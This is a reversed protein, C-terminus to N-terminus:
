QEPRFISCITLGLDQFLFRIDRVSKELCLLGLVEGLLMM